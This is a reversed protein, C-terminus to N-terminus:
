RGVTPPNGDTAAPEAQDGPPPWSYITWKGIFATQHAAPQYQKYISQDRDRWGPIATLSWRPPFDQRIIRRDFALGALTRTSLGDEAHYLQREGYLSVLPHWPFYIRGPFARVLNEAEVLHVTLPRLPLAPAFSLQQITVALIAAAAWVGAAAPRTHRLRRLAEVAALPLLYLVINLSNPAGGVKYASTLALPLLCLWTLAPLLWPSDRRWVTRRALLLGLAPVLVYLLLQIWMHRTRGLVDGILPLRGPIQVLNLWLGDFGFWAVFGAGVALGWAACVGAYRLAERWGTALGLWLLQAAVLPLATQKSWVALAACLGGLLVPLRAGARARMLLLNSCLGFAVASNDAQIYQLSTNPWLGLCLLLAWGRDLGPTRARPGAAAWVALAAPVVALLLNMIGAMVLASATDRALVAPLNTLLPVPGYIWTTLPGGASGPYPTSGTALLFTPELRVNNWEALPFFCVSTWCRFCVLALM